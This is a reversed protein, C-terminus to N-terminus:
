EELRVVFPTTREEKRLREALQRAEAESNLQGVRVRYFRGTPSDDAHIFVPQYRAELERGYSLANERQRFSGIQVTYKNSLPHVGNLLELRVPVVGAAVMDIKEAAALSLDIVRGDVFPGRDNIRVEAVRGNKANTVRVITDFPLTRHAATMKHMDYVEGNAARRGHYPIGYWSALGEEYAGSPLPKVTGPKAPATPGATTSPRPATTSPPRAIVPRKACGAAIVAVVVAAAVLWRRARSPRAAFERQSSM